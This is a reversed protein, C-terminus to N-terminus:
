VKGFDSELSKENGEGRGKHRPHVVAVGSVAGQGAEDVEGQCCGREVM